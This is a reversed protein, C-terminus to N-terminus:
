SAFRARHSRLFSAAEALQNGQPYAFLSGDLMTATSEGPYGLKVVRLGRCGSTPPASWASGLLGRRDSSSTSQVSRSFGTSLSDGLSLYYRPEQRGSTLAPTFSGLDPDGSRNRGLRATPPPLRTDAAHCHPQGRFASANSRAM